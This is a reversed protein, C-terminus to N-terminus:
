NWFIRPPTRNVLVSITCLGLNSEGRCNSVLFMHCIRAGFDFAVVRRKSGASTSSRQGCIQRTLIVNVNSSASRKTEVVVFEIFYSTFHIGLLIWMRELFVWGWRRKNETGKNPFGFGCFALHNINSKNSGLFYNLLKAQLEIQERYHVYKVFGCCEKYFRPILRFTSRNLPGLRRQAGFNILSPPSRSVWHPLHLNLASYFVEFNRCPVVNKSTLSVQRGLHDTCPHLGGWRSLCQLSNEFKSILPNAM